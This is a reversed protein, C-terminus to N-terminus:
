VAAAVSSRAPNWVGLLRLKDLMAAATFPKALYEDAGAAKASDIHSQATESTVMMIAIDNWQPWARIAAVLEVGNLRPMNSDCLIADPRQAMGSLMELAAAGDSAEVVECGASTLTRRILTRMVRSDDVVLVLM